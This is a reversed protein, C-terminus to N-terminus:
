RIQPPPPTSNCNVKQKEAAGSLRDLVDSAESEPKNRREIKRTPTVDRKPKVEEVQEDEKEPKNEPVDREINLDAMRDVISDNEQKKIEEVASKEKANDRLGEESVVKQEGPEDVNNKSGKENKKSSDSQKEDTVPEVKVGPEKDSHDSPESHERARGGKGKRRKGKGTNGKRVNGEGVFVSLHAIFLVIHIVFFPVRSSVNITSPSLTKQDTEKPNEM